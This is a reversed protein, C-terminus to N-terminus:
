LGWAVDQVGAARIALIEGETDNEEGTIRAITALFDGPESAKVIRERDLLMALFAVLKRQAAVLM